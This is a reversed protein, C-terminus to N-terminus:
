GCGSVNELLERTDNPGTERLEAGGGRQPKPETFMAGLPEDWM